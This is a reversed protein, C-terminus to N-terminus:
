ASGASLGAYWVATERMGEELSYPPVFELERRVRSSDIQLSGMLREVRISTVPWPLWPAVGDGIRGALRFLAPPVPILRSRRGVARAIARVLEPTSVDTGDSVFYCPSPTGNATMAAELAAAANGVFLLSRRNRIAGLPLPVGRAVADFLRLMNARMGPGYMAPFRLIVTRLGLRAGEAAVVQEAELKSAGYPDTPRPPTAETWPLTTCEGVAKVSSAFVFDSCGAGAAAQLASRTLEVNAERYAPLPDDVPDQMRHARAALHVVATAGAFAARLDSVSPREPLQRVLVGSPAPSDSGRTLAMVAHDREILWRCLYQGVFGSAGTVAVSQRNTPM